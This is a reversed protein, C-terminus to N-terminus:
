RHSAMPATRKKSASIQQIQRFHCLGGLALRATDREGERAMETIREALVSRAYGEDFPGQAEAAALRTARDLAAILAQTSTDRM